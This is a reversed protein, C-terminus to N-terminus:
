GSINKFQEYKQLSKSAQKSDTTNITEFRSDRLWRTYGDATLRSTKNTNILSM